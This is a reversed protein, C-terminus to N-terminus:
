LFIFFYPRKISSGARSLQPPLALAEVRTRLTIGIGGTWPRFGPEIQSM